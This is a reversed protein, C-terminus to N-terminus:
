QLALFSHIIGVIGYCVYSGVRVRMMQMGCGYWVWPYISCCLPLQWPLFSCLWLIGKLLEKRQFCCMVQFLCVLLAVIRNLSNFTNSADVLLVADCDDHIFLKCMSHTAAEVGAM